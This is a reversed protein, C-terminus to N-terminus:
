NGDDTPGADTESVIAAEDTGPQEFREKLKPFDKPNREAIPGPAPMIELHATGFASIWFPM